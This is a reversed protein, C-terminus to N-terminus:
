RGEMVQELRKLIDTIIARAQAIRSHRKEGAVVVASSLLDENYKVAYFLDQLLEAEDRILRLVLDAQSLPADDDHRQMACTTNMDAVIVPEQQLYPDIEIPFERKGDTTQPTKGKLSEVERRQMEPHIIGKELAQEYVDDPLQMIEYLTRWSPPLLAGMPANQFRRSEGIQVMKRITQPTFPLNIQLRKWSASELDRKAAAMLHCTEIIGSVSKNYAIRIKQQYIAEKGELEGFRRSPPMMETVITATASM